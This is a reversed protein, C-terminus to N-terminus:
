NGGISWALAYYDYLTYSNYQPLAYIEVKIKYNGSQTATFEVIEVNNKASSSVDLLIGSSNYAKLDIDGLEYFGTPTNQKEFALAVRVVSGATAYITYEFIDGPDGMPAHAYVYNTSTATVRAKEADIVGAGYYRYEDDQYTYQHNSSTSAMLIAKVTTPRWMLSSNKAMLVTAVGAVLPAAFSTGAAEYFPVDKINKYYGPASIDPKNTYQTESYFCSSDAIDNTNRNYNGVTIVNYAMGGSSVELDTCIDFIGDNNSDVWKGNGAAKVILIGYLFVIEDLYKSISGYTNPSDGNGTSDIIRMSINIVSVNCEIFWDMESVYTAYTPADDAYYSTCYFNAHPAVTSFIELVATAHDTPNINPYHHEVYGDEWYYSPSGSGELIGVNINDSSTMSNSLTTGNIFQLNQETTYYQATTTSRTSVEGSFASVPEAEEEVVDDCYYDISEVVEFNSIQEIRAPTLEAIIIPLYTSCYIKEENTLFDTGFDATYPEYCLRLAARKVEGFRMADNPATSTRELEQITSLRTQYDPLSGTAIAEETDYDKLWIAVRIKEESRTEMMSRLTPMVIEPTTEKVTDLASASVLFAPYTLLVCLVVALVKLVNKNYIRM